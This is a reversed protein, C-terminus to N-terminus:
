NTTYCMPYFTQREGAFKGQGADHRATSPHGGRPLGDATHWGIHGVWGNMKKPDIFSYYTSSLRESSHTCARPRERSISVSNFASLPTTQLYCQTIRIQASQLSVREAQPAICSTRKLKKLSRHDIYMCKGTQNTKNHSSLWICSRGAHKTM